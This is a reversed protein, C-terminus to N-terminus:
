LRLASWLRCSVQADIAQRGEIILLAKRSPPQESPIRSLCFRPSQRASVAHPNPPPPTWAQALPPYAHMPIIPAPLAPGHHVYTSRLAVFTRIRLVLKRLPRAAIGHTKHLAHWTAGRSMHISGAGASPPWRSSWSWARPTAARTKIKSAAVHPSCVAYASHQARRASMCAASRPMHTHCM